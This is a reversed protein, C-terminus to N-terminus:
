DTVRGEIFAILTRVAFGTAGLPNYGAAKDSNFAPGAIDLHAWPRGDTFERLFMGATLMAGDRSANNVLDAVKSDIMPRMDQPLPMPWMAEGAAESARVIEARVDDDGMVGATLNGLAVVQAGTLTAVDVVVAPEEEVASTLADALVLRGEADTNTVEVTTGNLMRIVDGPRQASGSPMNEALALWGTVNIPLKLRAAAIVAAAVAAAGSMDYKMTAMSSAPKLSLGGSDFTIGKGVLAVDLPGERGFWELKVLRPPHTSGQGVALIGRHNCLAAKNLESVEVYYTEAEERVANAMADPPLDNPATNILDRTTNVAHAVISAREIVAKLAKARGDSHAVIIQEPPEAAPRDRYRDFMYAGILAGEGIAGVSPVNPAEFAIGVRKTGGLQRVAAGAARRLAEPTWQGAPEEGMGVVAVVPAKVFGASPLRIVTDANGSFGLDSLLKRIHDVALPPLQPPLALQVKGGAKCGALVLVDVDLKAVSAAKLTLSPM